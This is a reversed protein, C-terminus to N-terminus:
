LLDMLQCMAIDGPMDHHRHLAFVGWMTEVWKDTWECVRHDSLKKMM